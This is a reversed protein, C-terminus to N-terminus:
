FDRLFDVVLLLLFFFPDEFPFPFRLFFHVHNEKTIVNSERTVAFPIVVLRWQRGPGNTLRWGLSTCSLHSHLGTSIM